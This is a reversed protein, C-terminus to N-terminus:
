MDCYEEWDKFGNWVDDLLVTGDRDAIICAAEDGYKENELLFLEQGYYEKTDIVYWTGEYDAIYIGKSYKTLIMYIEGEQGDLRYGLM